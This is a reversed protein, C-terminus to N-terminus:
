NDISINRYYELVNKNSNIHHFIGNSQRLLSINFYRYYCICIFAGEVMSITKMLSQTNSNVTTLLESWSVDESALFIIVPLAIITCVFLLLFVVLRTPGTPLTNALQGPSRPENGPQTMGFVYWPYLQAIWTFSYRGGRYRPTTAISFPTRQDGEVVTAM